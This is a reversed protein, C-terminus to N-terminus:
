LVSGDTWLCVLTADIVHLNKFINLIIDNHWQFQNRHLLETILNLSSNYEKAQPCKQTWLRFVVIVSPWRYHNYHNNQTSNGCCKNIYMSRSTLGHIIQPSRYLAPSPLNRRGKILLNIKLCLGTSQWDVRREIKMRRRENTFMSSRGQSSWPFWYQGRGQNVRNVEQPESVFNHTSRKETSQANLLERQTIIMPVSM